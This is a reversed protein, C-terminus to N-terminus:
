PLDMGEPDDMLQRMDRFSKVKKESSPSSQLSQRDKTRLVKQSLTRKVEDEKVVQKAANSEKLRKARKNAFRGLEIMSLSPNEKAKKVIQDVFREEKILSPVRMKIASIARDVARRTQVADVILELTLKQDDGKLVNDVVWNKTDVLETNSIGHERQVELLRQQAQAVEDPQTNTPKKTLRNYEEQLFENQEQLEFGRRQEPTMQALGLITPALQERLARRAELTSIGAEQALAFLSGVIDKKQIKELIPTIKQDAVTLQAVKEGLEQEKVKVKTEWQRRNEQTHVASSLITRVQEKTFKQKVGNVTAEILFEKDKVEDDSEEEAEEDEDSDEDDYLEEDGEEDESDENIEEAEDDLDDDDDDSDAVPAKAKPEPAKPALKTLDEDSLGGLDRFTKPKAVPQQPQANPTATANGENSPPVNNADNM